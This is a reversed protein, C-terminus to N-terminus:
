TNFYDLEADLEEPDYNVVSIGLRSLHETFAVLSMGALKAAKGISMGGSQFLHEALAIYVGHQVIKDNFPVGVFLPHGHRTVLSLEGKEAAQSLEGTRERLDRITFSQM